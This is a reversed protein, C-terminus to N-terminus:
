VRGTRKYHVAAAQVLQQPPVADIALSALMMMMLPESGRPPVRVLELLHASLPGVANALSTATEEIAAQAARGSSLPASVPEAMRIRHSAIIIAKRGPMTIIDQLGGILLYCTSTFM